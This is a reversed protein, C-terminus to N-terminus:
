VHSSAVDARVQLVSNLFCYTGSINVLGPYYLDDDDDDESERDLSVLWWYAVGVFAFWGLFVRVLM